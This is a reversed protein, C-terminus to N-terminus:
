NYISSIIRSHVYLVPYEVSQPTHPNPNPHISPHFSFYFSPIFRISLTIPIFVNNQKVVDQAVAGCEVNPPQATFWMPNTSLMVVSSRTAPSELETPSFLFLTSLETVTPPQDRNRDWKLISITTAVAQAEVQTEQNVLLIWEPMRSDLTHPVWTDMSSLGIVVTNFSVRPVLLWPTEVVTIPQHPSGDLAFLKSTLESHGDSTSDWTCVDLHLTGLPATTGPSNHEAMHNGSRAPHRTHSFLPSESPPHLQHAVAAV